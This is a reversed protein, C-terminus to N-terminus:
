AGTCTKDNQCALKCATLTLAQKAGKGDTIKPTAALNIVPMKLTKETVSELNIRNRCEGAEEIFETAAVVKPKGNTFDYESMGAYWSDTAINSTSVDHL